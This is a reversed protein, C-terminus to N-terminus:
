ITEEVKKTHLGKTLNTYADFMDATMEESLGKGTAIRDRLLKTENIFANAEETKDQLYEATASLEEVTMIAQSLSSTMLTIYEDRLSQPTDEEIWNLNTLPTVRESLYHVFENSTALGTHEREDM